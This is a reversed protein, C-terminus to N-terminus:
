VISKELKHLRIMIQVETPQHLCFRKAFCAKDTSCDARDAGPLRDSERYLLGSSLAHSVTVLFPLLPLLAAELAEAAGEAAGAAAAAAAAGPNCVCVLPSDCLPLAGDPKSDPSADCCDPETGVGAPVGEM